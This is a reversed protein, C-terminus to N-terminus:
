NIQSGNVKLILTPTGVVKFGVNNSAIVYEADTAYAGYLLNTATDNHITYGTPGDITMEINGQLTVNNVTAGAAIDAFVLYAHFAAEGTKAKYSVKVNELTLNEIKATEALSGFIAVKDNIVIQNKNVVLNSLKYGNGQIEFNLSTLATVSANECDVDCILWYKQTPDTNTFLKRASNKDKVINWNGTIYKAYIILDEEHKDINWKVPITCAADTYYDVFTHSGDKASVPDGTPKVAKNTSGYTIERLTEGNKFSQTEDKANVLTTGADCVLQVIVKSATTWKAAIHWETGEPLAQTFDVKEGLKYTGAEEDEYVLKGDVQEIHYWGDFTYKDRKISVSGSTVDFSGTYSVDGKDIIELAKGGASFYLDKVSKKNEFEGGNAYYSVKVTLNYESKIDDLSEGLTCGGFIFLTMIALLLLILKSRFKRKM